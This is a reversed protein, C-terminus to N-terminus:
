ACKRSYYDDFHDKGAYEHGAAVMIDRIDSRLPEYGNHEITLFQICYKKFDLGQLVLVEAGEVDISVFDLVTPAHNKDLLDTMSVTTFNFLTSEAGHRGDPDITDKMGGLVDRQDEGGKHEFQIKDGTANSVVERLVSCSRQEMNAPFPDVCLGKWSFQTDMVFTNSIQKGDNAGIDVYFGDKKCGLYELAQMDQHLQSAREWEAFCKGTVPAREPWDDYRSCEMPKGDRDKCDLQLKMTSRQAAEIGVIHGHDGQPEGNAADKRARAHMAKIKKKLKKKRAVEAQKERVKEVKRTKDQAKEIKMKTKHVLVRKQMRKLPHNGADADGAQQQQQAPTESTKPALSPSASEQFHPVGLILAGLAMAMAMAVVSAAERLEPASVFSGLQATRTGEGREHTGHTSGARM